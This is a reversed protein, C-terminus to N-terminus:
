SLGITVLGAVTLGIGVVHLKTIREHLFKVAIIATIAPYVSSIPAVLSAKGVKFALLFSVFGILNLLLGSVTISFHSFVGKPFDRNPKDIVYNFISYFNSILAITILYNFIGSKDIAVKALFDGSGLSVAGFIAWILWVSHKTRVSKTAESIKQPMAILIGGGIILLIAGYQLPTLREHLFIHSFIITIVPYSAVVTGTLSIQGKSISYYFVQYLLSAVAIYVLSPLALRHTEEGLLFAAPIYVFITLFNNIVNNWLPPINEFGKKVLVSGVAWCLAAIISFFFWNM